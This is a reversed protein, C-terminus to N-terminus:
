LDLLHAVGVVPQLSGQVFVYPLHRGEHLCHRSLTLFVTGLPYAVRWKHCCLNHQGPPKVNPTGEPRFAQAPTGHLRRAIDLAADRLVEPALATPVHAKFFIKATTGVWCCGACRGAPWCGASTRSRDGQEPCIHCPPPVSDLKDPRSRHGHM